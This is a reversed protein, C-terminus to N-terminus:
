KRRSRQASASASTSDYGKLKLANASRINALPWSRYHDNERDNSITMTAMTYGASKFPSGFPQM